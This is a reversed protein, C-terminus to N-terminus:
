TSYKVRVHAPFVRAGDLTVGPLGDLHVERLRPLAALHGLGADTVAKIEYLEVQELSAMRGLMELSRDTIQTLGAYYYKLRLPGIQETAADTTERCYM